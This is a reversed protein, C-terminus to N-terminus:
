KSEGKPTLSARIAEHASYFGEPIHSQAIRLAGEVKELRNQLTALQDGSRALRSALDRHSANVADLEARLRENEKLAEALQSKAETESRFLADNLDAARENLQRMEALADQQASLLSAARDCASIFRSIKGRAIENAAYGGLAKLESIMESVATDTLLPNPSPTGAEAELDPDSEIKDRMRERSLLVTEHVETHTDYHVNARITPGETKEAERKELLKEREDREHDIMAKAWDYCLYAWGAMFGEHTSAAGDLESDLADCAAEYNIPARAALFNLHNLYNEDNSTLFAM